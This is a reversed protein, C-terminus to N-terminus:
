LTKGSMTIDEMVAEQFAMTAMGIAQDGTQGFDFLCVLNDGCVSTLSDNNGLNDRIEDLFPPIHNPNSFTNVNENVGYQFVSESATVQGIYVYLSM